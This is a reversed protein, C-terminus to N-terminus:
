EIRRAGIGHQLAARYLACALMPDPTHGGLLEVLVVHDLHGRGQHTMALLQGLDAEVLRDRRVRVQGPPASTGGASALYAQAFHRHPHEGVLRLEDVYLQDMSDVLEDPLDVRSANILVSGKSLQGPRLQGASTTIILTAGFVAEAVTTTVLSGVGALDLQDLVKPRIAPRLPDGAPWVAVHSLGPVYRAVLSLAAQAAPGSGLVAATVVGPVVLKRAALVSLAAARLAGLAAAPLLCRGGARQDQLLVMGGDGSPEEPPRPSGAAPAAPPWPVLRCGPEATGPEGVLGDALVGVPDIVDLASVLEETSLRLIPGTM